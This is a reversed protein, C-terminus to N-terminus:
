RGRHRLRVLCPIFLGVPVVALGAGCLGGGGGGGGTGASGVMIGVVKTASETVTNGATTHSYSAVLTV